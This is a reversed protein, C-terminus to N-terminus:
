YTMEYGSLLIKNFNIFYDNTGQILFFIKKFCRRKVFFYGEKENRQDFDIVTRKCWGENGLHENDRRCWQGRSVCSGGMSDLKSRRNYDTGDPVSVCCRFPGRM